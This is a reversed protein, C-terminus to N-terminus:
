WGHRTSLILAGAVFYSHGNVVTRQVPWERSWVDLEPRPCMIDLARPSVRHGHAWKEFPTAVSDRLEAAIAEHAKGQAISEEKLGRFAVHLTAGDDRAFAKGLPLLHTPRRASCSQAM